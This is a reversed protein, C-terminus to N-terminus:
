ITCVAHFVEVSACSARTTCLTVEFRRAASLVRRSTIKPRIEAAAARSDPYLPFSHCSYHSDVTLAWNQMAAAAVTDKGRHDACLEQVAYEKNNHLNAQVSAQFRCVRKIARRHDFCM